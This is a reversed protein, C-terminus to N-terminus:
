KKKKKNKSKKPKEDDEEEEADEVNDVLAAGEAVNGLGEMITEEDSEDKSAPEEIAEIEDLGELDDDLEEITDAQGAAFKDEEDVAKKIPKKKAAERQLESLMFPKEAAAGVPPKRRGRRPRVVM